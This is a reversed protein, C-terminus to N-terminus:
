LFHGIIFIVSVSVATVVVFLINRNKEKKMKAQDSWYCDESCYAQDFPV